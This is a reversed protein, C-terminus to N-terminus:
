VSPILPGHLIPQVMRGVCTWTVDGDTTTGGPTTGWTPETTSHSTGATTCKYVYPTTVPDTPFVYADQAYATNAVWAAGIKQFASVFVPNAYDTYTATPCCPCEYTAGTVALENLFAGTDARHTRVVFDTHDTVETFSGAVYRAYPMAQYDPPTFGSTWRCVNKTIRLDDIYGLFGYGITLAEAVTANNFAASSSCSGELVGDIFLYFNSGSRCIAVHQWTDYTVNSSSTIAPASSNVNYCWLTYKNAASTHDVSFSWNDASWSGSVKQIPTPYAYATSSPRM